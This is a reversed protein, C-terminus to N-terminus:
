PEEPLAESSRGRLQKAATVSAPLEGTFRHYTRQDVSFYLAVLREGVARDLPIALLPPERRLTVRAPDSSRHNGGAAWVALAMSGSLRPFRAPLRAALWRNGTLLLVRLQGGSLLEPPGSLLLFDQGTGAAAPLLAPTVVGRSTQVPIGPLARDLEALLEAKSPRVTIEAIQYRLPAYESGMDRALAPFNLRIKQAPWARELLPEVTLQDANRNREYAAVRAVMARHYRFLSGSYVTRAAERTNGTLLLALLALLPLAATLRPLRRLGAALEDRWLWVVFGCAAALLLLASGGTRTAFEIPYRALFHLATLGLALLLPLTSWIWRLRGRVRGDGNGATVLALLPLVPLWPSVLTHGALGVLTRAAMFCSEMLGAGPAHISQRAFNGPATLAVLAWFTCWVAFGILARRPRAGEVVAVVVAFALLLGALAGHEYFGPALWAGLLMGAYNLWGGRRRFRLLFYLAILVGIVALTGSFINAVWGFMQDFSRLSASAAAWLLLGLAFSKKRPLKWTLERALGLLLAGFLLYMALCFVGYRWPGRLLWDGAPSSAYCLYRGGWEWYAQVPAALWARLPQELMRTSGLDEAWPMAFLVTFGFLACVAAAAVAAAALGPMRVRKM